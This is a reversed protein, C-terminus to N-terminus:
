PRRSLPATTVSEDTRTTPTWRASGSHAEESQPAGLDVETWTQKIRRRISKFFVRLDLTLDFSRPTWVGGDGREFDFRGAANRLTAVLGWLYRFPKQMEFSARAIGYDDAAIWLRGTSRNLAKDMRRKDPLRGERPEFQLVWCTHEGITETGVLTARYRDMLERDFRVREEDPEYHEGRAAHARAKKIFDAKKEDEERADGRDLPQGDREILEQYPLGELPYQHHRATETKTVRGDGDLSEITSSVLFGHNLEAGSEYQSAARELARDLIVAATLPVSDNPASPPTTETQTQAAPALLGVGFGLLLVGLCRRGHAQTFPLFSIPHTVPISGAVDPAVTRHEVM